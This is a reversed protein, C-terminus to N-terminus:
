NETFSWSKPEMDQQKTISGDAKILKKVVAGKNKDNVSSSGFDYLNKRVNNTLETGSKNQKRFLSLPILM